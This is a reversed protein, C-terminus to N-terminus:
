FVVHMREIDLFSPDNYIFDLVDIVSPYLEILNMLSKYQSGWRTEGPRKLGIEQNLGKGIEIDGNNIQKTVRM